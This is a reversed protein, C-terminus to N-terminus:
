LHHRHKAYLSPFFVFSTKIFHFRLENTLSSGLADLLYALFNPFVPFGKSFIAKLLDCEVKHKSQKDFLKNLLWYGASYIAATNDLLILSM